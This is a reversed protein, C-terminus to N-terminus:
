PASEWLTKQRRAQAIFWRAGLMVPTGGRARIVAAIKRAPAGYAVVAVRADHFRLAEPAEVSAPWTWVVAGTLPEAGVKARTIVNLM